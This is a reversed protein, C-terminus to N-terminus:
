RMMLLRSYKTGFDTTIVCIYTAQSIKGEGNFEVKYEIKAEAMGDYLTQVKVGTMSYVDLKVYGAEPISFRINSTSIFPNPYSELKVLELESVNGNNGISGDPGSAIGSQLPPLFYGFRCEDFGRNIADVANSIASLTTAGVNGGGLGLNALQYLDWVDPVIAGNQSLVNYVSLPIPYKTWGGEIVDGEEDCGSSNATILTDSLIDLDALESDLRLNLGLTITQALLINNIRGDKIQIGPHSACTNAGTIKKAPGGGPLLEIICASEGPYFTMTNGNSGVVLNGQALLSEILEVTGMGNCFTGGENGYFGQTLTCFEEGCGEIFVSLCLTDTNYGCPSVGWFCVETTGVPFPDYWSGGDSRLYEVVAPGCPTM